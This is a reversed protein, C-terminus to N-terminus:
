LIEGYISQGAAYGENQPSVLLWAQARAIQGWAIDGTSLPEWLNRENERARRLLVLDSMGPDSVIKRKLPLIEGIPPVQAGTLRRLCPKVLLLWAALASEMREPVLIVPIERGPGSLAGCGMTEGPRVAIGHAIVRGARTLAEQGAGNCGTGGLVIVLDSAVRTVAKVLHDATMELINISADAGERCTLAACWDAIPKTEVGTFIAVHPVRLSVEEFGALRMLAVHDPRLCEGADVIIQGKALDGGERRINEGPTAPALIEVPQASAAIAHWPLVSDACGPLEDGFAVPCPATLAFNPAYASAGFTDQSAVAWGDRLATARAPLPVPAHVAEAAIRGVAAEVRMPVPEVVRCAALLLTCAEDLPVLRDFGRHGQKLEAILALAVGRQIKIRFDTAVNRFHHKADACSRRM